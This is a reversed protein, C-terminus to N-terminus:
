EKGLVANPRDTVSFDAPPMGKQQREWMITYASELNRTYRATDFLPEAIRNIALKERIVALQERDHALTIALKEYEPLSAAVLEPLGMAYLGSAAVRGPFAMGLCTLVPLGAWLADCATAHANYPLTDLFLDALRIRALHKDRPVPRAFILREPAVGCSVAERRLNEASQQSLSLMWLVSKDVALLVRMWVGFVEPSFKTEQNFCAFIFGTGPLGAESRSPVDSSISQANDTPQYTHPLYV